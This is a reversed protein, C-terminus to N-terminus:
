ASSFWVSDLSLTKLRPLDVDDDIFLRGDQVENICLKMNEVKNVLCYEIWRSIPDSDVEQELTLSFKLLKTNEPKSLARDVFTVFRGEAGVDEGGTYLFKLRSLDSMNVKWEGRMLLVSTQVAEDMAM